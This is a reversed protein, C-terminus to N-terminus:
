YRWRRYPNGYETVGFKMAPSKVLWVQDDVVFADEEVLEHFAHGLSRQYSLAEERTRKVALIAVRNGIGGGDVEWVVFVKIPLM